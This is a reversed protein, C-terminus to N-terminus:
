TGSTQTGVESLFQTYYKFFIVLQPVLGEPQFNGM